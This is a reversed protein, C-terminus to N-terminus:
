MWLLKFDWFSQNVFVSRCRETLVNLTTTVTIIAINSTVTVTNVQYIAPPVWLVEGNPYILVNSKYRVEYNGDASFCSLLCDNGDPWDRLMSNKQTTIGDASTLLYCHKWPVYQRWKLVEVSFISATHEEWVSWFVQVFEYSKVNERRRTHLYFHEPIYHRTTENFYVSTESTIWYFYTFVCGESVCATTWHILQKSKWEATLIASTVLIPPRKVSTL